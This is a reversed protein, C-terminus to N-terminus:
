QFSREKNYIRRDNYFEEIMSREKRQTPLETGKKTSNISRTSKKTLEVKRKKYYFEIFRGELPRKAKKPTKFLINKHQSHIKHM